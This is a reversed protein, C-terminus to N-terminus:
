VKLADQLKQDIEWSAVNKRRNLFWELRSTVSNCPVLVGDFESINEVWEPVGANTLLEACEQLQRVYNASFLQLKKIEWDTM